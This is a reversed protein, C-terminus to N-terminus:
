VWIPRRVCVEHNARLAELFQYRMREYAAIRIEFRVGHEAHLFREDRRERSHVVAFCEPASVEIEDERTRALCVLLTSQFIEDVVSIRTADDESVPSDRAKRLLSFPQLCPTYKDEARRFLGVLCRIDSSCHPRAHSTDICLRLHMSGDL